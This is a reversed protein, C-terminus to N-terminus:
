FFLTVWFFLMTFSLLFGMMLGFFLDMYSGEESEDDSESNLVQIDGGDSFVFRVPATEEDDNEGEDVDDVEDLIM